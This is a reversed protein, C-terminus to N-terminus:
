IYISIFATRLTVGFCLTKLFGSNNKPRFDIVVGADAYGEIDYYSPGVKRCIGVIPTISGNKMKFRYGYHNIVFDTTLKGSNVYPSAVVGVYLNKLTVNAGISVGGGHPLYTYGATVSHTVENHAMAVITFMAAIITIITKKM